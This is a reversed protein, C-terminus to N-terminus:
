AGEVFFPSHDFASPALADAPKGRWPDLGRRALEVRDGGPVGVAGGIGHRIWRAGFESCFQAQNERGQWEAVAFSLLGIWDYSQGRVSAAWTRAAELDFPMPVGPALHSRLRLVALLGDHRVEYRDVGVGNRSAWSYGAGDYIEVHAFRSWTKVRILRSFLGDGGYLLADGPQIAELRIPAM